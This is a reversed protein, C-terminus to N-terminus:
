YMSCYMCLTGKDTRQTVGYATNEKMGTVEAAITLLGIHIHATLTISNVVQLPQTHIYSLKTYRIASFLLSISFNIYM